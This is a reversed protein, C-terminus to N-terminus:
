VAFACIKFFSEVILSKSSETTVVFHYLIFRLINIGM